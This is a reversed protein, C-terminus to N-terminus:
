QDIWQICNEPNVDIGMQALEILGPPVWSILVRGEYTVWIDWPPVNDVNFFGGSSAQAAGGALNNEPWYLLLRGANAYNGQEYEPVRDLLQSRKAGVQAVVESWDQASMNSTLLGPSLQSSRMATQVPGFSNLIEAFIQQACNWQTTDQIKRRRWGRNAIRHAEDLLQNAQARLATRSLVKQSDSKEATIPQTACWRIVDRLSRRFHESGVCRGSESCLSENTNITM